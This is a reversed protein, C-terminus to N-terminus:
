LFEVKHLVLEQKPRILAGLTDGVLEALLLYTLYPSAGVV